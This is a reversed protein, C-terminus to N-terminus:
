FVAPTIFFGLRKIRIRSKTHFCKCGARLFIGYISRPKYSLSEKPATCKLWDSMDSSINITVSVATENIRHYSQKAISLNGLRWEIDDSTYACGELLHCTATFNKGVEVVISSSSDPLIKVCNYTFGTHYFVSSLIM